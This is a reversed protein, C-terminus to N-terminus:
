VPTSGCHDTRRANLHHSYGSHICTLVVGSKESTRSQPLINPRANAAGVMVLYTNSAHHLQLKHDTMWKQAVLLQLAM